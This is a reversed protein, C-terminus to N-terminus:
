QVFEEFEGELEASTKEGEYVVMRFRFNASEGVELTLNLAELKEVGRGKEFAYQGLPNASFLGYGRAHWYTPYNVSEPHNFIAIGVARGEKEGELCVWRARKGWINKEQRDGESSVYRGSGGDEKLWEAVRIAFMGEKTDGFVVKEDQATLEINFDVAYESEGAHFVMEREEELLVEGKKGVWQMVTSLKGDGQGSAMEVVKVHKIQPPSTMNNWFGEENVEDYTFFVGVHHPHDESEGEVRELPFGRNVAIGSPSMVPFLVPKTLGEDYRYSTFLKGGVMVDIRKEGQVFNIAKGGQKATELAVTTTRYKALMSPVEWEPLEGEAVYGLYREMVQGFHAEHGVRYEEPIVIHWGGEVSKLEIGPYKGHLEMFAKALAWSLATEDGGEAPEVYLEPKYNQEKGQRIVINSRSGRMISYHTDKAGEPAAYNWKVGVKAYVGKIKYVIEGNAYCGLVGEDNVNAKLFDPFEELGTVKKYQELTVKTPWRKAKEIEIDRQFDISEEPFCEWMVLDLLHATVDVIGEGQQRTDFYWGPRKIPNGSVYKFFHHVSEKVVAPEEVSGEQLEGFVARNHVLEKQLITTIESRETMIDYILVGKKEAIAFAEELVEYGEADICMPKDALVNLGAEVSAKIYEAKKRNNGSIVVVNGRREATMKELFDEGLYVSEEWSTPEEARSNFGEIRKMYGEVDPGQPAYVNVVESVGEYMKKQVLAAHFHGPDLTILRVEGEASTCEVAFFCFVIGWIAVTLRREIM